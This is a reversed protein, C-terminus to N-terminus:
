RAVSYGLLIIRFGVITYVRAIQILSYPSKLDRYATRQYLFDSYRGKAARYPEYVSYENTDYFFDLIMSGISM